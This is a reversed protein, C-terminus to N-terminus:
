IVRFGWLLVLAVVVLSAVFIALDGIRPRRGGLPNFGM